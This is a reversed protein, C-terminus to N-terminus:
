AGLVLGFPQNPAYNPHCKQSKVINHCKIALSVEPYKEAAFFNEGRILNEELLNGTKISSSKAQVALQLAELRAPDLEIQAKWDEFAAEITKLRSKVLFKIGSGEKEVRYVLASGPRLPAAPLSAPTWVQWFTLVAVVMLARPKLLTAKRM